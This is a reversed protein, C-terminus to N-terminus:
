GGDRCHGPLGSALGGDPGGVEVSALHAVLGGLGLEVAAQLYINHAHMFGTQIGVFFTPYLLRVVQEFMGLGAGTLSFDQILVTQVLYYAMDPQERLAQRILADAEADKQQGAAGANKLRNLLTTILDREQPTM